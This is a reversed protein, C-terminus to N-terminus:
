GGTAGADVYYDTGTGAASLETDVETMFLYIPDNGPNGSMVYRRNAMYYDADYTLAFVWSTLLAFIILFMLKKM